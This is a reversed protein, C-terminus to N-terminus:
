PHDAASVSGYEGDALALAFELDADGTVVLELMCYPSGIVM